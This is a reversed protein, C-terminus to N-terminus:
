RSPPMSWVATSLRVQRRLKKRWASFEAASVNAASRAAPARVSCSRGSGTSSFVAHKWSRSGSPFMMSTHPARYAEPLATPERPARPTEKVRRMLPPCGHSSSCLFGREDFPDPLRPAVPLIEYGAYLIALSVLLSALNEIKHLGGPFRKTRKECVFLCVLIIITPVVDCLSHTADAALAISGSVGALAYKVAALAGKVLASCTMTRTQKNM